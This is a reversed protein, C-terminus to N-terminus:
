TLNTWHTDVWYGKTANWRRYQLHGNYYRYKTEITDSIRSEVDQEIGTDQKIVTEVDNAVATTGLIGLSLAMLVISIKIRKM